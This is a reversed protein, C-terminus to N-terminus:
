SCTPLVQSEMIIASKEVKRIDVKRCWSLFISLQSVCCVCRIRASEQEVSFKQEGHAKVEGRRKDALLMFEHLGLSGCFTQSSLPKCSPSMIIWGSPGDDFFPRRSAVARHGPPTTGYKMSSFSKPIGNIHDKKVHYQRARQVFSTGANRIQTHGRDIKGSMPRDRDIM